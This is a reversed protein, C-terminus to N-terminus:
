VFKMPDGLTSVYLYFFHVKEVLMQGLERTSISQQRIGLHKQMMDSEVWDRGIEDATLFAYPKLGYRLSDAENGWYLLAMFLQYDEENDLGANSPMLQQIQAALKNEDAEYQTQMVAVQRDYHQGNVKLHDNKDQVLAVSSQWNVSPNVKQVMGNLPGTQLFSEAFWPLFSYTSDIADLIQRAIGFPLYFFRDGRRTMSNRSVRPGSLPDVFPHLNGTQKVQEQGARNVPGGRSVVAEAIRGYTRSNMQAAEGTPCEM